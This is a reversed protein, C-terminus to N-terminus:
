KIIILKDKINEVNHPNPTSLIGGFPMQAVLLWDNPINFEDKITNDILPNYHQLSAGIDKNAFATWIMYQLMANSQLDWNKFNEAYLPYKEELTKTINTDIFFLITGFGNSFTSIKSRIGDHKEISTTNILENQVSNWFKYHYDNLLLVVRGSQSNFSSPYLEICRKVIEIIDDDKLEINNDIDYFSHRKAFLELINYNM